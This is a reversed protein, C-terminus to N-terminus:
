EMGNDRNMESAKENSSTINSDSIGYYGADETYYKGSHIGTAAYYDADNGTYDYSDDYESEYIEKNWQEQTRVSENTHEYIDYTRSGDPSEYIAYTMYANPRQPDDAQIYVFVKDGALLHDEWDNEMKKYTGRNINSDQATLNEGEVSGGFRAGIMHGGDDHGREDDKGRRKEGGAKLQNSSNREVSEALKLSGVACKTGNEDTYYYYEGPEFENFLDPNNYDETFSRSM